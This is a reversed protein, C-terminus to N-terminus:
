HGASVRVCCLIVVVHICMEITVLEGILAAHAYALADMVVAEAHPDSVKVSALQPNRQMYNEVLRSFDSPLNAILQFPFSPTHFNMDAIIIDRLLPFLPHSRFVLSEDDVVSRLFANQSLPTGEGMRAADSMAVRGGPPPMQASGPFFNAPPQTYHSRSRDAGHFVSRGPGPGTLPSLPRSFQGIQQVCPDHGTDYGTRPVDYRIYSTMNQGSNILMNQRNQHVPMIPERPAAVDPRWQVPAQVSPSMPSRLHQVNASWPGARKSPTTPASFSAATADDTLPRQQVFRSYTATEPVPQRGPSALDPCSQYIVSPSATTSRGGICPMGGQQLASGKSGVGMRPNGVFAVPVSGTQGSFNFNMPPQGNLDTNPQFASPVDLNTFTPHSSPAYLDAGQVYEYAQRVEALLDSGCDIVRQRKTVHLQSPSTSSSSATTSGGEPALGGSSSLTVSPDGSIDEVRSGSIGSVHQSTTINRSRSEARPRVNERTGYGQVPEVVTLPTKEDVCFLEKCGKQSKDASVTKSDGSAVSNHGAASTTSHVSATDSVAVTGPSASPINGVGTAVSGTVGGECTSSITPSAVAVLDRGSSEYKVSLGNSQHVNSVSDKSGFRRNQLEYLQYDNREVGIGRGRSTDEQKLELSLRTNSPSNCGSLYSDFNAEQRELEFYDLEISDEVNFIEELLNNRIRVNKIETLGPCDDSTFVPTRASRTVTRPSM